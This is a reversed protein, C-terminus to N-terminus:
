LEYPSKEVFMSRVFDGALGRSFAGGTTSLLVQEDLYRKPDLNYLPDNHIPDIFIKVDHVPTGGLEFYNGYFSRFQYLPGDVARYLDIVRQKNIVMPVHLEYSVPAEYGQNVLLAYIKKMNDIYISSDPYRMMYHEILSKMDGFNINPVEHLMKMLFFDDNMMVFDDSIESNNVAASLNMGWNEPKTKSQAVPIYEINTVWNPKEGVIYVKEHVINKLSRLSYRLEESDNEPHEKFLYVIDM